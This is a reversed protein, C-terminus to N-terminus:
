AITTGNNGVVYWKSNIFRLIVSQGVASFVITGAGGWAAGTVTLTGNGVFTELVVTKEQGEAVGLAALTGANAGTTAWRTTDTVINVVGAGSLAQISSKAVVGSIDLRGTGLFKVIPNTTTNGFSIVEKADAVGPNTTNIHIYNNSGERIRFAETLDDKLQINWIGTSGYSFIPGNVDSVQFSGQVGSGSAAGIVFTMDGGNGATGNGDGASFSMSGGAGGITDGGGEGGRFILGIGDDDTATGGVWNGGAGTITFDTATQSLLSYQNHAQNTSTWLVTPSTLFGSADTGLVDYAKNAEKGIMIPVGAPTGVWLNNTSQVTNHGISDDSDTGFKAYVDDNYTNSTTFPSSLGGGSGARAM